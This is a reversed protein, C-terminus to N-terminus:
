KPSNKVIEFIDIPLDDLNYKNIINIASVFAEDYNATVNIKMMKKKLSNM